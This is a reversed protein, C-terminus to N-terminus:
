EKAVTGQHFVMRWREGDLKWISSRLSSVTRDGHRTARYTALVVGDALSRAEFQDMTWRVPTERALAAIIEAKTYASGSSGIEVFDDSLLGAVQEADRRTAPQLLLEELKQLHQGIAEGTSL